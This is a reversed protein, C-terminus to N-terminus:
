PIEVGELSDIEHYESDLEEGDVALADSEAEFGTVFAEGSIPIEEAVSAALVFITSAGSYQAFIGRDPDLRGLSVDSLTEGLGGGKDGGGVLIRARPPSLGLSALENPGM